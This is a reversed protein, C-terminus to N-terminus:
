AAATTRPMFRRVLQMARGSRYATRGRLTDNYLLYTSRGYTRDTWKMKHPECGAMFDVFRVGAAALREFLYDKMLHGPSHAAYAADYSSKLDYFIGEYVLGCLYAIAVGDLELVVSHLWGRQAAVHLFDDYFAQQRPNATIATGADQKWSAREVRTMSRLLREVDGPGRAEVYSAEGVAALQRHSKRLSKRFRPSLAAKYDDWGGPMAIFACREHQLRETPYRHVEASHLFQTESSSGEILMVLLADWPRLEARMFDFVLDLEAESDGLLFGSRGSYLDNLPSVVRCPIRHIIKESWTLPLIGVVSGDREHVIVDRQGAGALRRWVAMTWEFSVTPDLARMDGCRGVLQENWAAALGQCEDYDHLVRVQEAPSQTTRM